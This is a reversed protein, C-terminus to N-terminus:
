AIGGQQIATQELIFDAYENSYVLGEVWDVEILRVNEWACRPRLVHTAHVGCERYLQPLLQRDTGPTDWLQEIHGNQELYLHPEIPYALVMKHVQGDELLQDFLNELTESRLLVHSIDVFLQINGTMGLSQFLKSTLEEKWSAPLEHPLGVQKDRTCQPIHTINLGATLDVLGTVSTWLVFHKVCNCQVLREFFASIISKAREDRLWKRWDEDGYFVLVPELINSNM